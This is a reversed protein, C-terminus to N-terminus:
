LYKLTAKVKTNKQGYLPRFDNNIMKINVFLLFLVITFYINHALRIYKLDTGGGGQLNLLLSSPTYINYFIYKTECYIGRWYFVGEERM